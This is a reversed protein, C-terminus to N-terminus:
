TDFGTTVHKYPDLRVEDNHVRVAPYIMNNRMKLRVEIEIWEDYPAHPGLEGKEKIKTFRHYEQSFDDMLMGGDAPAAHYWHSSNRTDDKGLHKKAERHLYPNIRSSLRAVKGHKRDINADAWGPLGGHGGRPALQEAEGVAVVQRQLEGPRGEV